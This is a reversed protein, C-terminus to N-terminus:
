FVMNFGLYFGRGHNVIRTDDVSQGTEARGNFLNLVEGIMTVTRENYRYLDFEITLDTTAGGSIKDYTYAQSYGGEPNIWFNSAVTNSGSTTGYPTEDSIRRDAVLGRSSDRWRVVSMLRLRDQYFSSNLTVALIWPANYNEAPLDSRSILGERYFVTDYTLDYGQIVLNERVNSDFFGTVSYTKSKTASLSVRHTGLYDTAFVRSLTGTIGLYESKGDNTLVYDIGDSSKSILQKQHKRRVASVVYDTGVISGSLDGSIEDSYPTSLGDSSFNRVASITPDRPVESGDEQIDYIQTHIPRHRRFAYASLHQGYYRNAGAGLRLSGNAFVDVESKFRPAIDTNGSFRDYDIRVGPRLLLRHWVVELQGYGGINSNHRAQSIEEYTQITRRTATLNHIVLGENWMDIHKYGYEIGTTYSIHGVNIDVDTSVFSVSARADRTRNKTDGLGGYKDELGAYRFSTKSDRSFGHRAVAAKTTLVGSTLFYDAQTAFRWSRNNIYWESGRFIPDWRLAEYPAYTLDLNLNLENHPQLNLRAFYNENTRTQNDKYTTGDVKVRTLPITSHHRVYSLLVAAKNGVPGEASTGTRYIRFRPQNNPTVSEKDEDRLDFWGDYTYGGSLSFRWYDSRPERLKADVVGGVFGGYVAPINSTYVQISELLSSDYFLVVDSGGVPLDTTNRSNDLGSPNLTNTVSMGDIMFNNEYPRAGSISIRPPAIEGVTLSSQREYDYQIQSMGKLAETVSGTASPMLELAAGEIITEGSEISTAHVIVPTMTHLNPAAQGQGDGLALLSDEAWLLPSYFLVIMLLCIKM